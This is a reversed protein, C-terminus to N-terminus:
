AIIERITDRNLSYEKDRNRGIVPGPGGRPLVRLALGGGSAEWVGYFIAGALYWPLYVFERIAYDLGCITGYITGEGAL